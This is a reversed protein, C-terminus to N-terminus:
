ISGRNRLQRQFEQAWYYNLQEALKRVDYENSVSANITTNPAFNITGGGTSEGKPVVTEGAHLYALGEEKIFGGTQLKPIRGLNIDKLEKIKVGPILNIAKILLNIGKIAFNLAGELGKIWNNVIDILFNVASKFINKVGEWLNRFFDSIKDWNSIIIGVIHYRLFMNKIWEWAAGFVNKIGDWLRIFFNKIPEWYKIILYVAAGVAIPILAWWGIFLILILGIGAIILGIGEFKGKVIDYIGIVIAVIGGVVAAIPGLAAIISGVSVGFLAALGMMGLAVQGVTALILGAAGALLVLGGIALKVNEPLNMFWEAIQILVPLIAEMVPLLVVAWADAFLQTIGYLEFQRRILGGFTRDLAMGAFLLSLWEFKFRKSQVAAGKVAQGYTYTKGTLQDVYGIGQKHVLNNVRAYKNFERQSINAVKLAEGLSSYSTGLNDVNVKIKDFGKFSKNINVNKLSGQISTLSKSVKQITATAEDIAQIRITINEQPM